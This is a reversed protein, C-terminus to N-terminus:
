NKEGVFHGGRRTRLRSKVRRGKGARLMFFLKRRIGRSTMYAFFEPSFFPSLRSFSSSLSAPHITLILVEKHEPCPDFVMHSLVPLLQPPRSRQTHTHTHTHTHTRLCRDPTSCVGTGYSTRHTYAWPESEHCSSSQVSTTYVCVRNRLYGAPLKAQAEFKETGSFRKCAFFPTDLKIVAFKM